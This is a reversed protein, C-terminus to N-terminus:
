QGKRRWEAKPDSIAPTATPKQAPSPSAKLPTTPVAPAVASALSRRNQLERDTLWVKGPHMRDQLKWPQWRLVDFSKISLSLQHLQHISYDRVSFSYECLSIIKQYVEYPTGVRFSQLADEINAKTTTSPAPSSSNQVSTQTKLFRNIAQMMDAKHGLSISWQPPSYDHCLLLDICNNDGGRRPDKIM